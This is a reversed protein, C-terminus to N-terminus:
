ERHSTKQDLQGDAGPEREGHTPDNLGAVMFGPKILLTPEHFPLAQFKTVTASGPYWFFGMGMQDLVCGPLVKEKLDRRMKKL